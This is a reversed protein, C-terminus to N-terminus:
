FVFWQSLGTEVDYGDNQEGRQVVRGTEELEPGLDEARTFTGPGNGYRISRGSRTSRGSRISRVHRVSRSHEVGALHVASPGGFVARVVVDPELDRIEPVIWDVYGHTKKSM